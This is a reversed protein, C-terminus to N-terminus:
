YRLLIAYPGYKAVLITYLITLYNEYAVPPTDPYTKGWLMEEHATNWPQLLSNGIQNNEAAETQHLGGPVIQQGNTLILHM